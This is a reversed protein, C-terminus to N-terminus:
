TSLASQAALLTARAVAVAPLPDDQKGHLPKEVLRIDWGQLQCAKEALRMSADLELTVNAGREIILGDAMKARVIWGHSHFERHLIRLVESECCEVIRAIIKRDVSRGERGQQVFTEREAVVWQFRPQKLLEDRLVRTQTDLDLVFKQVQDNTCEAVKFSKCWAKYPGGSIVTTALRKAAAESVGHTRSVLDLWERRNDRYDFLIPVLDELGFQVSLSCLLRVDSNACDVDHAFSGVLTPRLELRTTLLSSKARVACLRGHPPHHQKYCVERVVCGAPDAPYEKLKHYLSNAAKELDRCKQLQTIWLSRENQQQVSERLRSLEQIMQSRATSDRKLDDVIRKLRHVDIKEACKYEDFALIEGCHELIPKEVNSNNSRSKAVSVLTFSQELAEM